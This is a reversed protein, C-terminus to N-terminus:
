YRYIAAVVSGNPMQEEPLVIIQAGQLLAAQGLEDALDPSAPDFELDDAPDTTTDLSVAGSQADYTGPLM